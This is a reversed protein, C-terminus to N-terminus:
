AARRDTDLVLAWREDLVETAVARIATEHHTFHHACFLLDVGAIEAAAYARGRCQDCRDALKLRTPVRERASPEHPGPTVHQM